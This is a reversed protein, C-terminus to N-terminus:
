QPLRAASAQRRPRCGNGSDAVIGGLRDPQGVFQARRHDELVQHHGLDVPQRQDLEEAGIRLGAFNGQDHERRLLLRDDLGLGEGDAGIIVQDLQGVLQLQDGTDAIVRFSVDRLKLAVLGVAAQRRTLLLKGIFNGLRRLIDAGQQRFRHSVTGDAHVPTKDRGRLEAAIGEAIM